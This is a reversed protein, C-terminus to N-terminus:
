ALRNWIGFSGTPAHNAWHTPARRSSASLRRSRLRTTAASTVLAAGLLLGAGMGAPGDPMAARPRRELRERREEVKIGTVRTGRVIQRDHALVGRGTIPSTPTDDAHCSSLAGCSRSLAPCPSLPERTRRNQQWGLYVDADGISHRPTM